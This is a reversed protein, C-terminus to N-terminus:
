RAGIKYYKRKKYFHHYIYSRPELNFIFKGGASTLLNDAAESGKMVKIEAGELGKGDQQVQGVLELYGQDQAFSFHSILVALLLIISRKFAM